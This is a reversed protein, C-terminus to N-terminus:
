FAIHPCHPPIPPVLPPAHLVHAAACWQKQRPAQKEPPTLPAATKKCQEM